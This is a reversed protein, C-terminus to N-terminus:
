LEGLLVQPLQKRIRDMSEIISKYTVGNEALLAVSTVAPWTNKLSALESALADHNWAGSAAAVRRERAAKGTVKILYTFDKRLTVTIEV